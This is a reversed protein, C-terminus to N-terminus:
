LLLSKGVYGQNEARAVCLRDHEASYILLTQHQGLVPIHKCFTPYASPLKVLGSKCHHLMFSVPNMKFMMQRSLSSLVYKQDIALFYCPYDVSHKINCCRFYTGLSEISSPSIPMHCKLYSTATVLFIYQHSIALVAQFQHINTEAGPESFMITQLCQAYCRQDLIKIITWFLTNASGDPM